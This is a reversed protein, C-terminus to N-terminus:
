VTCRAADVGSPTRWTSSSSGGSLKSSAASGSGNVPNVATATGLGCTIAM